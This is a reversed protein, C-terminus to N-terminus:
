LPVPESDEPETPMVFAIDAADDTESAGGVFALVRTFFADVTPAPAPVDPPLPSPGPGKSGGGCATLAVAIAVLSLVNKM